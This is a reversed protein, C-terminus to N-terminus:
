RGYESCGTRKQHIKGESGILDELEGAREGARVRLQAMQAAHPDARLAPWVARDKHQAGPKGLPRIM